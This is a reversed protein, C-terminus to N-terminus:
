EYRRYSSILETVFRWVEGLQHVPRVNDIAGLVSVGFGRDLEESLSIAHDSVGCQGPKLRALVQIMLSNAYSM